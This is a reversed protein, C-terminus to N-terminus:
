QRVSAASGVNVPTMKGGTKSSVHFSSKERYRHQRHKCRDCLCSRDVPLSFQIVAARQALLHYWQQLCAFTYGGDRARPGRGAAAGPDFSPRQFMTRALRLLADPPYGRAASRSVRNINARLHGRRPIEQSGPFLLGRPSKM